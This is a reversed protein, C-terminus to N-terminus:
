LARYNFNYKFLYLLFRFFNLFQYDVYNDHLSPEQNKVYIVTFIIDFYFIVMSHLFYIHIITYKIWELRKKTLLNRSREIWKPNNILKHTSWNYIFLFGLIIFFVIVSSIVLIILVIFQDIEAFIYLPKTIFYWSIIPTFSLSFIFIDDLLFTTTDSFASKLGYIAM